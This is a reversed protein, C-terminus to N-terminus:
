HLAAGLFYPWAILALLVQWWVLHAYGITFLWGWFWLMGGIHPATNNTTNVRNPKEEARRAHPLELTSQTTM